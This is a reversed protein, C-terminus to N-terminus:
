KEAKVYLKNELLWQLVLRVHKAHELSDRSFILIDYLYVYVFKDLM